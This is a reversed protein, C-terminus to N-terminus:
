ISLIFFESFFLSFIVQRELLNFSEFNRGLNQLMKIYGNIEAKLGDLMRDYVTYPDLLNMTLRTILVDRVTESPVDRMLNMMIEIYFQSLTTPETEINKQYNANYGDFNIEAKTISGFIERFKLFSYVQYVDSIHNKFIILFSEQM